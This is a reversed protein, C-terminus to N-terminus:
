QIRGQSTNKLLLIFNIIELRITDLNRNELTLFEFWKDIRKVLEAKQLDPGKRFKEMELRLTTAYKIDKIGERYGEWAITDIAGNITPYTFNHDRYKPHDFDNWAHNFSSSYNYNMNGDYNALWVGLGYNRRYIEPNEVGAQPNHYLVIKHKNSHMKQAEKKNIECNIELDLIDAAFSAINAGTVYVKGGAQHITNWAPRQATVKEGKQEDM